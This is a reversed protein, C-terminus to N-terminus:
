ENRGTDHREEAKTGKASGVTDEEVALRQRIQAAMPLNRKRQYRELAQELTAVAEQSRGVKRLVEALDCLADGQWTLGDMGETISVTREEQGSIGSGKTTRLESWYPM